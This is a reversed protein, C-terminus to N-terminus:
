KADLLVGRAEKVRDVDGADDGDPHADKVKEQFATEIVRKPANLSVGLLDAAAERDLDPKGAGVAIVEEDGEGSPLRATAFESQGTTVPRDSMK